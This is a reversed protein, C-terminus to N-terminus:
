RTQVKVVEFERGDFRVQGRVNLYDLMVRLNRDLRSTGASSRYSFFAFTAGTQIPRIDVFCSFMRLNREMELIEDSTFDKFRITTDGPLADCRPAASAAGAQPAPTNDATRPAVPATAPAGGAPAAMGGGTYAALKDAIASGLESAVLKADDGVANFLCTADCQLPLAPLRPMNVEFAAVLNNGKLDLVRAPMRVQPYQIQPQFPDRTVAAVIEFLVVVDVPQERMVARAISLVEADSRRAQGPAMFRMTSSTEDFVQIGRTNLNEQLQTLVRRYVPVLRSMTEESANETMVLANIRRGQAEATHNLGTLSLTTLLAGAALKTLNKM